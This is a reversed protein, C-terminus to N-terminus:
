MVLLTETAKKNLTGKLFLVGKNFYNGKSCGVELVECM